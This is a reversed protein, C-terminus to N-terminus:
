VLFVSVTVQVLSYSEDGVNVLELLHHYTFSSPAMPACIRVFKVGIISRGEWVIKHKARDSVGKGFHQHM